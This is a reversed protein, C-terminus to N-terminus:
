LLKEIDNGAEGCNCPFNTGLVQLVLKGDVIKTRSYFSSEGKKLEPIVEFNIVKKSVADVFAEKGLEDQCVRAIHDALGEMYYNYVIEGIGKATEYDLDGKKAKKWNELITQFDVEVEFEVGTAANIKELREQLKEQNQAINKRGMLSLLAKPDDFCVQLSRGVDSVNAPFNPLPVQMILAGNDLVTRCYQSLCYSQGKVEKFAAPLLKFGIKKATSGEVLAEKQLPDQCFQEISEALAQLYYYVIEGLQDVTSGGDKNKSTYVKHIDAYDCEFEFEVGSADKIKELAEKVKEENDKINKRTKLPLSM